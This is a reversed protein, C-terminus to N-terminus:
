SNAFHAGLAATANEKKWVSIDNQHPTHTHTHTHICTHMCMLTNKFVQPQMVQHYAPIIFKCFWVQDIQNYCFTTKEWSYSQPRSLPVVSLPVLLPSLIGASRPSVSSTALTLSFHSMNGSPQQSAPDAGRRRGPKVTEGSDSASSGWPFTVSFSYRPPPTLCVQAQIKVTGRTIAKPFDGRQAGSAERHLPFSFSFFFIISVGAGPTVPEAVRAESFPNTM